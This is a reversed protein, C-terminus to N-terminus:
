PEIENERIQYTKVKLENIQNKQSSVKKQLKLKKKQSYQLLNQIQNQKEAAEKLKENEARLTLIEQRQTEVENVIVNQKRVTRRLESILKTNQKSKEDRKNVNRISYHGIKTSITKLKEKQTDIERELKRKRKELKYTTYQVLNKSKVAEDDSDSDITDTQVCSNILVSGIENDNYEIEHVDLGVSASTEKILKVPPEFTASMLDSINEYGPIKKKSILKKKQDCIRTIKSV